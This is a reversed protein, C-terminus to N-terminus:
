YPDYVAFPEVFTTSEEPEDMDDYDSYDIPDDAMWPPYGTRLMSSVVPDDPIPKM